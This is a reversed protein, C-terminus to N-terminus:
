RQIALIRRGPVDVASTAGMDLVVSANTWPRQMAIPNPGWPRFDEMALAIAAAVTGSLEHLGERQLERPFQV